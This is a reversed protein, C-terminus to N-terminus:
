NFNTITWGTSSKYLTFDFKLFYKEFKLIYFRKTIFDKIKREIIFENSLIKGYRPLIINMQNSITEQLTDVASHAIISNEKLLQLAEPIKGDRFNQMFKDCINNIKENDKDTKTQGCSVFTLSSFLIACILKSM